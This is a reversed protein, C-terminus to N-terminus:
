QIEGAPLTTQRLVKVLRWRKIKSLPRCEMVEVTDGVNAEGAEDHAHVKSHRRIFKKYKPHQYLSEIRVTISKAM